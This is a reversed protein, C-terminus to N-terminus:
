FSTAQGASRWNKKDFKVLAPECRISANLCKCKPLHSGYKKHGLFVTAESSKENSSLSKVGLDFYCSEVLQLIKLRKENDYGVLGLVGCMMASGLLTPISPALGLGGWQSCAALRKM